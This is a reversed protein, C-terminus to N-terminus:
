AADSFDADPILQESAQDEIPTHRALTRYEGRAIPEIRNLAKLESAARRVSSEPEGLREAMERVSFSTLECAESLIRDRLPQQKVRPVMACDLEGGFTWLGSSTMRLQYAAEPWRRSTMSLCGIGNEKTLVLNTTAAGSLGYTGSIRVQGTGSDSKKNTHHILMIPLELDRGLRTFDAVAQYDEAYRDGGKGPQRVLTLLDVIVFSYPLAQLQGRLYKIVDSGPRIDRLDYIYHLDQWYQEDSCIRHQRDRSQEADEELSLFLVPGPRLVEFQNLVPMGSIVSYAIQTALVTKGAKPEGALLVSGPTLLGDVVHSDHRPQYRHIDLGNIVEPAQV